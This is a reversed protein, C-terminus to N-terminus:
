IIRGYWVVRWAFVNTKEDVPVPVDSYSRNDCKIHFSRASWEIRRPYTHKPFNGSRLEAKLRAREEDTIEHDSFWVLYIGSDPADAISPFSPDLDAALMLDGKRVTPEMSDDPVEFLHPAFEHEPPKSGYAGINKRWWNLDFLLPPPREGPWTPALYGPAQDLQMEGKGTALWEVSVRTAGALAILKERSPESGKLWLHITSDSVGASQAVSLISAGANNLAIRLRDSFAAHSKPDVKERSAEDHASGKPKARTTSARQKRLNM